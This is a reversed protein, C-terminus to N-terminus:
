EPLLRLRELSQDTIDAILDFSKDVHLVTLGALQATPAIILAPISPARHKGTGALVLQVDVARDEIAPTLYEVPM